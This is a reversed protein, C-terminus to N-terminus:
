RCNYGSCDAVAFTTQGAFFLTLDRFQGFKKLTPKEYM